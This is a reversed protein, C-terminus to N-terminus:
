RLRRKLPAILLLGVAALAVPGPVPVINLFTESGGGAFGQVHIGIRTAASNLENILGSFDGNLNITIGVFEGPNVGNHSVPPDSDMGFDMVFPPVANNGAPLNPPTAGNSFQVGPGNTISHLSALATGNDFYIDTISMAASGVNRFTFLARGSGADTVEVSLQAEGALVDVLNNNSLGTFGYLEARVSTVSLGALLLATATVVKSQCLSM